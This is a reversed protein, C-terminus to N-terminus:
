LEATGAIRGRVFHAFGEPHEAALEDLGDPFEAGDLLVVAGGTRVVEARRRSRRQHYWAILRPDGGAILQAELLPDIL